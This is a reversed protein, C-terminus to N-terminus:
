PNTIKQEFALLKERRIELSGESISKELERWLQGLQENDGIINLRKVCKRMLAKTWFLLESDNEKLIITRSLQYLKPIDEIELDPVLINISRMAEERYQRKVDLCYEMIDELYKHKKTHLYLYRALNPMDIVQKSLRGYQNEVIAIGDVTTLQDMFKLVDIDKQEFQSVIIAEVSKREEPDICQLLDDRYGERKIAYDTSDKQKMFLQYADSHKMEEGDCSIM